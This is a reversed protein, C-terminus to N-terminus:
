RGEFTPKTSSSIAPTVDVYVHSRHWATSLSSSTPSAGLTKHTMSTPTPLHLFAARLWPSSLLQLLLSSGRGSGIRQLLFGFFFM